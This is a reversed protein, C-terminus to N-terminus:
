SCERPLIKGQRGQGRGRGSGLHRDGALRQLRATVSAGFAEMLARRYPKQNYSVKVMYVKCELDLFNCAMALASGWQGAGTETTLKEVGAVKNYYAQAVATNPKHSGAPSVGEYKYYIKAPTELAQELRRARFLPTPRWQKLIDRVESPIQVDRETSMEQEILNEPFIPALDEPGLPEGSGPHLVPPPPTPLDAAINYWSDSIASEDLLFKFRTDSKM